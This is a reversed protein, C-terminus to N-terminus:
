IKHVSILAQAVAALAEVEAATTADKACRELVALLSTEIREIQEATMNEGGGAFVKTSVM